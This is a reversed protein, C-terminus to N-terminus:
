ETGETNETTCFNVWVQGATEQAQRVCDPLGIGRYPSGSVFLGPPLAAEIAAVRELHGVDYQPTARFWRYIRHFLPKATIGMLDAVETRALTLLTKDDLDPMHPSRTGGFFIRLLVHGAPARHDFKTSTWTIANISRAEQRPIVLGFGDLPHDVDEARYALSLTGTSVYRIARLDAAADPAMKDLLDAAAYAPIALIVSDALLQDGSNLTLRYRGNEERVLDTVTTELRCDGTLRRRLEDTLSAMGDRMSTFFSPPQPRSRGNEGQQRAEAEARMRKAALMGRILSGHKVELDRFRPFTALLSQEEVDANYIGSLLPEALKDLAEEGLRRRVFDGLSEDQGDRRAPVFLDLGMRLKGRWSLLRSKLFPTISTPVILMLGEPMTVPQGENLIFTQRREDNTPLLADDLGLQRALQWAWPKQTIFSDPGAEIVFPRETGFEDVIETKVKGGWRDGAELLAYTLSQKDQEAEQQLYWAASLGTIGGGVIAVQVDDTLSM